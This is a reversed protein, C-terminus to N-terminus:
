MNPGRYFEINLGNYLLLNQFLSSLFSSFSSFFFHQYLFPPCLLMTSTFYVLFESSALSYLFAAFSSPTLHFTTSFVPYLKSFMSTFLLGELFSWHPSSCAYANHM